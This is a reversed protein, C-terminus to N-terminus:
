GLGSTLIPLNILQTSEIEYTIIDSSLENSEEGM